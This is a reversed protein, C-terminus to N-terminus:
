GRGGGFIRVLLWGGGGRGLKGFHGGAESILFAKQDHISDRWRRIQACRNRTHLSASQKGNRRGLRRPNCVWCGPRFSPFRSGGICATAITRVDGLAICEGFCCATSASAVM